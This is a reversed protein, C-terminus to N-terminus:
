SVSFFLKRDFPDLFDDFYGAQGALFSQFHGFDKSRYRSLGPRFEPSFTLILYKVDPRTGLIQQAFGKLQWSQCCRWLRSEFKFLSLCIELETEDGKKM